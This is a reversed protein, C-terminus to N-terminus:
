AFSYPRGAIGGCVAIRGGPRLSNFAAEFHAGGVNEFYMDIGKPAHEKVAAALDAATPKTKYDIAADFGFKTKILEAKAPGGCSGIVQTHTHTHTHTDTLRRIM